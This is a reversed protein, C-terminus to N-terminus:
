RSADRHLEQATCKPFMRPRRAVRALGIDGPEGLARLVDCFKMADARTVVIPWLYPASILSADFLLDAENETERLLALRALLDSAQLGAYSESAAGLASALTSVAQDGLARCQKLLEVAQAINKHGQDFVIDIGCASDRGTIKRLFFVITRIFAGYRVDECAPTQFSSSKLTELFDDDRLFCVFGSAHQQAISLGKLALKFRTRADVRSFVGAGYLLDSANLCGTIADHRLFRSWARDLSARRQGASFFGALVTVVSSARRTVGESLYVTMNTM